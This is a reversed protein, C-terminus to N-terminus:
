RQRGFPAPIVKALDTGGPKSLGRGDALGGPWELRMNVSAADGGRLLGEPCVLVIAPDPAAMDFAGRTIEDVGLEAPGDQPPRRLANRTWTRVHVNEAGIGISLPLNTSEIPSFGVPTRTGQRVSDSGADGGCTSNWEPFVAPDRDWRFVLARFRSNATSGPGFVRGRPAAGAFTIWPFAMMDARAPSSPLFVQTAALVIWSAFFSGRLIAHVM